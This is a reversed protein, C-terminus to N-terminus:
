ARQMRRRRLWWSVLGIPLLGSVILLLPKGEPMQPPPEDSACQTPGQHDCAAPKPATAQLTDEGNTFTPNNCSQLDQSVAGPIQNIQNFGARVLNIPLPAYGLQTMEQQGQCLGYYAFTSLTKGKAFSFAGRVTTPVILYSYYSLVYTRPDSDTYVGGLQETLYLSPDTDTTDITAAMLSIAVNTATPATYYGASNLLKLVPLRANLAYNYNVYGIAGNALSQALYATVGLDGNQAIMGTTAPYYSTPGCSAGRGALQCYVNWSAPYQSKMWATFQFSTAAQDSRVVPVIALDPLV